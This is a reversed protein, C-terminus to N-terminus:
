RFVSLTFLKAEKRDNQVLRPVNKTQQMRALWISYPSGGLAVFIKRTQHHVGPIAGRRPLQRVVVPIADACEVRHRFLGGPLELHRGALVANGGFRAIRQPGSAANVVVAGEAQCADVIPARLACRRESIGARLVLVAGRRTTRIIAITSQGTHIVRVAHLGGRALFHPSACQRALEILRWKTSGTALPYRTLLISVFFDGGVL